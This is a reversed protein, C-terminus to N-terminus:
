IKRCRFDEGYLVIPICMERLRSYIRPGVREELSAGEFILSELDVKSNFLLPEDAKASLRSKVLDLPVYNTTIFTPLNANYRRSIIQDLISLEWEHKAKDERGKGLEDIALVPVEALPDILESEAQGASYGRKLDALLRFFDVFRCDIGKELILRRIIACILFTKGTGVPGMLLLGKTVHLDFFEPYNGLYDIVADHNLLRPQFATLDANAFRAPLGAREFRAVSARAPGCRGCRGSFTYGDKEISIWGSDRCEPCQEMCSCLEAKAADTGAITICGVGHCRECAM